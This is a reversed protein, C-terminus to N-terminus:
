ELCDKLEKVLSEVDRYYEDVDPHGRNNDSRDLIHVEYDEDPCWVSVVLGFEDLEVVIRKDMKVELDKVHMLPM